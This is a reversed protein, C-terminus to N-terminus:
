LYRAGIWVKENNCNLVRLVPEKYPLLGRRKWVMLEDEEGPRIIEGEADKVATDMLYPGSRLYPFTLTAEAVRGCAAKFGEGERLCAVGLPPQSSM